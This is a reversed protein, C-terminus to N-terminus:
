SIDGRVKGTMSAAYRECMDNQSAERRVYGMM